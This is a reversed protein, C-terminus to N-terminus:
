VRCSRQDFAALTQIVRPGLPAASADTRCAGHTRGAHARFLPHLDGPSGSPPFGAGIILAKERSLDSPFRLHLASGFSLSAGLPERGRALQSVAAFGSKRRAVTRLPSPTPM